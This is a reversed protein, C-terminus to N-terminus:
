KKDPRTPRVEIKSPLTRPHMKLLDVVLIGIDGPQIKWADQESPTHDNFHTAVSGPMITSVKIDYPRLDLMAAQTFGVVGFKTANYGAGSAFFNTGALSAVTIYYGRSAKLADVSAKLTYFVGDLNTTIMQKWADVSLEDVPAFHGVGANALVVDLQGWHDLITNVANQEEALVGVDSPITLVRDRSGLSEAAKRLSAESRGSLAVRMGEKLLAKAVGYGIGKSGGTIYAVKNKLDNMTNPKQCSLVIVAIALILATITKKFPYEGRRGVVVGLGWLDGDPWPGYGALWGVAASASRVHGFFFWWYGPPKTSFVPTSHQRERGLPLILVRVAKRTLAPSARQCGAERSAWWLVWGGYIGTLGLGMAPLGGWLLPHAECLAM